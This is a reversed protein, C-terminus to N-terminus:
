ACATPRSTPASPGAGHTPASGATSNPTEAWGPWVSLSTPPRAGPIDTPTENPRIVVDVLAEGIVLATGPRGPATM